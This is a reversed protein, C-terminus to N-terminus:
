AVRCLRRRREPLHEFQRHPPVRVFCDRRLPWLRSVGAKSRHRSKRRETARPAVVELHGGAFARGFLVRLEGALDTSTDASSPSRRPPPYVSAADTLTYVSLNSM